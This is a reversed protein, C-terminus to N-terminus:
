YISPTLFYVLTYKKIEVVGGAAQAFARLSNLKSPTNRVKLDLSLGMVLLSSPTAGLLIKVVKTPLKERYLYGRIRVAKIPRM